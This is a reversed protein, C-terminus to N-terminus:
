EDIFEVMNLRPSFANDLKLTLYDGDIRNFATKMQEGYPVLFSIVASMIRTIDKGPTETFLVHLNDKEFVIKVVRSFPTEIFDYIIKLVPVGDENEAFTAEVEVLYPEGHIHVISRKSENFGVKLPIVEDSEIFDIFADGNEIRFAISRLGATYNSQIMQLFLPAFGTSAASASTFNFVKGDLSAIDETLDREIFSKKLYPHKGNGNIKLDSKFNELADLEGKSEPLSSDFPKSFYKHTLTFFYGQQFTDSNGCNIVITISSERFTLLNQGFIGNFLFSNNSRGCWIHYGYNYEGYEKPVKVKESTAADLYIDSVLRKGNWIGNQQILIGIKALDERRIYLGWGGKEIGMPCKEWYYSKIDLAGFLTSDLFESVSMGTREKIIAALMYSNMSNYKFDKGITGNVDSNIFGKVWDRTVVAEAENFAICSTMTLLHKVTLSKLRVKAVPTAKADFIDTIRENLKLKGKQVLIGIALSIISKCESFTARPIYKDYRAADCEFFVKDGRLMMIGQANISRDSFLHNLYELLYISSIGCEEPTVRPFYESKDTPMIPKREPFKIPSATTKTTDLVNRLLVFAKGTGTINM